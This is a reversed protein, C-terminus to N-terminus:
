PIVGNRWEIRRASKRAYLAFRRILEDRLEDPQVIAEISGENAVSFVDIDETYDRRLQEILAKRESEPTQMIRNYYIANIAAEPGM